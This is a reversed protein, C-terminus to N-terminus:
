AKSARTTPDGCEPCRTSSGLGTLDYACQGCRGPYRRWARRVMLLVVLIAASLLAYVLSNLLVPVPLVGLLEGPGVPEDVHLQGPTAKDILVGVRVGQTRGAYSAPFTSPTSAKSQPSLGGFRVHPWPFGVIQDYQWPHLFDPDLSALPKSSWSPLRNGPQLRSDAITFVRLQYLVTRRGPANLELARATDHGDPDDHVRLTRVQAPWLLCVSLSIAHLALVGALTLPVLWRIDARRVMSLHVPLAPAPRVVGMRWHKAPKRGQPTAPSIGGRKRFTKTSRQPASWAAPMVIWRGFHLRM